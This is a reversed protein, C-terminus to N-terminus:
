KLERLAAKAQQPNMKTVVKSETLDYLLSRSKALHKKRRNTITLLGLHLRLSYEHNMFEKIMEECDEYHEKDLLDDYFDNLLELAEFWGEDTDMEKLEKFFPNEPRVGSSREKGPLGGSSSPVDIIDELEKYKKKLLEWQEIPIRLLVEFTHGSKDSIYELNM